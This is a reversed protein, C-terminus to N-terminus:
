ESRCRPERRTVASREPLRTLCEALNNSRTRISIKWATPPSERSKRRRMKLIESTRSDFQIRLHAGKTM